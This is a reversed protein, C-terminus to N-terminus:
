LLTIKGSLHPKTRNKDLLQFNITDNAKQWNFLVSSPLFIPLKFNVDVKFAKDGLTETLAAICRTKSWMGHVIARNFGFAKASWAFLHILNFDNSVKAYQRGLSAALKWSETNDYHPLTKRTKQSNVTKKKSRHLFTSTEEWVVKKGVTVTSVIDFKIGMDTKHSNTLQCQMDFVENINLPRHQTISNKYHVLGLLPLPFKNNTLLKMHLPFAMIHPLTSPLRPKLKFGCVRSYEKLLTPDTKIGKLDVSLEPIAITDSPKKPLAARSLLAFINPSESLHMTTTQNMTQSMM